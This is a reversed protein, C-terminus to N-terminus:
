SSALSKILLRNDPTSTHSYVRSYYSYGNESHDYAYDRGTDTPMQPAKGTKTIEGRQLQRGRSTTAMPPVEKTEGIPGDHTKIM